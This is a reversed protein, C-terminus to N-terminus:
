STRDRMTIRIYFEQLEMSIHDHSPMHSLGRSPILIFMYGGSVTSSEVIMCREELGAAVILGRHDEHRMTHNAADEVVLVRCVSGGGRLSSSGTFTLATHTM